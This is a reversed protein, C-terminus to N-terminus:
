ADNARWILTKTQGTMFQSFLPRQAQVISAAGIIKYFVLCAAPLLSCSIIPFPQNPSVIRTKLSLNVPKFLQPNKVSYAKRILTLMKNQLYFSDISWFVLLDLM